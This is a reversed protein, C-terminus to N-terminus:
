NCFLYRLSHLHQNRLLFIPLCFNALMGEIGGVGNGILWHQTFSCHPPRTLFITRRYLPFSLLALSIGSLLSHAVKVLPSCCTSPTYPIHKHAPFTSTLSCSMVAWYSLCGTWYNAHNFSRTLAYTTPEPETAPGKEGTVEGASSYHGVAMCIYWTSRRM